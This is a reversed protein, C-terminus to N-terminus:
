LKSLLLVHNSLVNKRFIPVSSATYVIMVHLLYLCIKGMKSSRTAPQPLADAGVLGACIGVVTLKM